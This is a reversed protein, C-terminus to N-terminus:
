SELRLDCPSGVQLTSPLEVVRCRKATGLYHISLIHPVADYKTATNPKSVATARPGVCELSKRQYEGQEIIKARQAPM